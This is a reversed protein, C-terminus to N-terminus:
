RRDVAPPSVPQAMEHAAPAAANSRAAPHLGAFLFVLTLIACSAFLLIGSKDAPLRGFLTGPNAKPQMERAQPLLAILDGASKAKSTDAPRNPLAAIFDALRATATKKPMGALLAAEQWPDLSTRAFASLVTLVGGNPEDDITAFLFPDFEPHQTFSFATRTM